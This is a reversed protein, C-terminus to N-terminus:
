PNDAGAGYHTPPKGELGYAGFRTLADARTNPTTTIKMSGEKETNPPDLSNLLM